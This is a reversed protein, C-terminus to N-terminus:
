FPNEENEEDQAKILAKVQYLVRGAEPLYHEWNDEEGNSFKAIVRAIPEAPNTMKELKRSCNDIWSLVRINDAQYPKSSDIRDITLDYHEKGKKNLYDTRTCFSVFENITLNFVVKRVRACDKINSYAYKLPHKIRHKRSHCTPCDKRGPRALRACGWHICVGARINSLRTKESVVKTLYIHPFGPKNM